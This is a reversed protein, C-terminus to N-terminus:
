TTMGGLELLLLEDRERRPWFKAEAVFADVMDSLPFAWDPEM